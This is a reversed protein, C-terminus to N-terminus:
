TGYTYASERSYGLKLKISFFHKKWVDQNLELFDVHWSCGSNWFVLVSASLVTSHLQNILVKSLHQHSLGLGSHTHLGSSQDPSLGTNNGWNSSVWFHGRICGHLYTCIYTMYWASLTMLQPWAHHCSWTHLTKECICALMKICFWSGLTYQTDQCYVTSRVSHTLTVKRGNCGPILCSFLHQM